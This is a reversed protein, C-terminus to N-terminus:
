DRDWYDVGVDALNRIVRADVHGDIWAVNCAEGHVPWTTKSDDGLIRFVGNADVGSIGISHKPCFKQYWSNDSETLMVTTSPHKFMVEANRAGAGWGENFVHRMPMNYRTWQMWDDGIASTQSPCLFVGKENVYSFIQKAWIIRTTATSGNHDDYVPTYTQNYDDKYMFQALGLQKLNATCSAQRAKERAKSLAPLLMSALIAIIAIVVLLEILTFRRRQM